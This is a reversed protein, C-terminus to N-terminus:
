VAPRAASDSPARYLSSAVLAAQVGLARLQDLDRQGRVGGGYILKQQPSRRQVARLCPWDCGQDGGVKNLCLVIVKDPWHEPRALLQRDGLLRGDRFDLSLVFPLGQKKLRAPLSPDGLTESGLILTATPHKERLRQYDSWHAIGADLWCHLKTTQPALAREIMASNEGRGAIADLDACYLLGFGNAALHAVMGGLTMDPFYASRLPAYRARDGGTAHVAQGDKIDLVPIREIMPFHYVIKRAM